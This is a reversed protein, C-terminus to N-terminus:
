SESERRRGAHGVIWNGRRKRIGVREDLPTEGAILRCPLLDDPLV